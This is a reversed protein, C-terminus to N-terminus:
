RDPFLNRSINLNCQAGKIFDDVQFLKNAEIRSFDIDDFDYVREGKSNEGVIPTSCNKGVAFDDDVTPLFNCWWGQDDNVEVDLVFGKFKGGDKPLGGCAEAARIYSPIINVSPSLGYVKKLAEIMNVDTIGVNDRFLKYAGRRSLQATYKDPNQVPTPTKDGDCLYYVKLTEAKAGSKLLGCFTVGTNFPGEWSVDGTLFADECRNNTCSSGPPSTCINGMCQGLNNEVTYKTGCAAEMRSVSKGGSDPTVQLQKKNKAEYDILDKNNQCYTSADTFFPPVPDIKPLELKVLKENITQLIVFSLLALVLGMAAAWMRKKAAGTKDASGGSIMWQYGAVIFMVVALLAGAGILFKYVGEIYDKLNSVKGGTLKVFPLPVQLKVNINEAANKAPEGRDPQSEADAGRGPQSGGIQARDPQSGLPTSSGQALALVPSLLVLIVVLTVIRIRM